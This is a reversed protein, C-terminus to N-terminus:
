AKTYYTSRGKGLTFVLGLSVLKSLDRSATIQSVKYTKQVVRNSIKSGPSDLFHLILKQRENLQTSRTLEAKLQTNLSIDKVIKKLQYVIGDIIYDLWNTVNSTRSAANTLDKYKILDLLFYEEINLLRRFDYGQKYLFLYFTLSSFRENNQSFPYLNLITFEALAAQIIPHEQTIQVYQLTNELEKESIKVAGSPYISQYFNILDVAHVPKLTSLWRDYIYDFGSKILIAEKLPPTLKNASKGSALNKHLEESIVNIGNLALLSRIRDTLITWQFQQETLPPIPFLLIKQRLIDLEKIKENLTSTKTYSFTKM